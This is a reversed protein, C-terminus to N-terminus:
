SPWISVKQIRRSPVFPILVYGSTASGWSSLDVVRAMREAAGRLMAIPDDPRDRMFQMHSVHLRAASRIAEEVPPWLKEQDASLKLGAHLAAIRADMFAQADEAKTVWALRQDENYDEATLEEISQAFLDRLAMTDAPM